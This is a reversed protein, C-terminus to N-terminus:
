FDERRLNKQNVFAQRACRASGQSHQSRGSAPNTASRFAPWSIRTPQEIRDLDDDRDFDIGAHIKRLAV